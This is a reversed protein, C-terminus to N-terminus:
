SKRGIPARSVWASQREDHLIDMARLDTLPSSASQAEYRFTVKPDNADSRFAEWEQLM